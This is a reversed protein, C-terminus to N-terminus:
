RNTIRSLEAFWNTVVILRDATEEQPGLLVLHRQGDSSIDHSWGPVNLYPGEFLVRPRSARFGNKTSVDVGLWQQRNRYVIQDGRPSWLPEEGGAVSIKYREQPEEISIVYVETEGGETYAIWRGDHSFSPFNVHGGVLQLPAGGSRETPVLWLGEGGRLGTVAVRDGHPSPMSVIAAAVLTDRRSADNMMQRVVPAVIGGAPAFETYIVEKGDPSWRPYFFPVGQTPVRTRSGRALDLVWLEAHGAASEIRILIQTGDPSLHFPGYAARPFPLTDVHGQRDVWLLVSLGGNAGPAYVLTGDDAIAFQGAGAEAEQRIGELV